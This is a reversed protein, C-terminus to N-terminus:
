KFLQLVPGFIEEHYIEMSDNINRLVTPEYFRGQLTPHVGGGSLVEAGKNVADKVLGDVKKLQQDNIIPGQNVSPEFGDGVVLQSKVAKTVMESFTDFISEHVLVRNTAM